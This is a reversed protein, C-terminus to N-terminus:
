ASDSVSSKASLHGAILLVLLVGSLIAMLGNPYFGSKLAKPVFNGLCVVTLIASMIRGWRPSSYKWIALSVLMLIGISGAAILSVVSPSHGERPAFYAQAGLGICIVSFAVLYANILKTM